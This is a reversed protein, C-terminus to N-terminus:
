PQSSGQGWFALDGPFAGEVDGGGTGIPDVQLQEACGAGNFDIALADGTGVAHATCNVAVGDEAAFVTEHGRGVAEVVNADGEVEGGAWVLDFDGDGVVGGVAGCLNAEGPNGGLLALLIVVFGYGSGLGGFCSDDKDPRTAALVESEGAIAERATGSVILVLQDFVDGGDVGVGDDDEVDGLGDGHGPKVFDLTDDLHPPWAIFTAPCCGVDEGAFGAGGSAQGKGPSFLERVIGGGIGGM